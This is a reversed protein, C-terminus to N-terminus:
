KFKISCKKFNTSQRLDCLSMYGRSSSFVFTDPRHPHFECHTIVESLDDNESPNLELLNYSIMRNEINWLNVTLDDASLFNEGDPSVSLANICYKQVGKYQRKLHGEVGSSVIESKPM